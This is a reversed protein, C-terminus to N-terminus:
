RVLDYGFDDLTLMRQCVDVPLKERQGVTYDAYINQTAGQATSQIDRASRKTWIEKESWEIIIKTKNKKKNLNNEVCSQLRQINVTPQQLKAIVVATMKM